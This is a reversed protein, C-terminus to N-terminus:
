PSSVGKPSCDECRLSLHPCTAKPVSTSAYFAQKDILNRALATRLQEGIAENLSGRAMRTLGVSAIATGFFLIVVLGM